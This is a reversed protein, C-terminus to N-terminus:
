HKTLMPQIFWNTLEEIVSKGENDKLNYCMHGNHFFPEELEYDSM